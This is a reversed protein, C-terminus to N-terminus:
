SSARVAAVEIAPIGANRGATVAARVAEDLRVVTDKLHAGVDQWCTM